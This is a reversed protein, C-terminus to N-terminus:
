HARAYVVVPSLGRGAVNFGSWKCQPRQRAAFFVFANLGQGGTVIKEDAPALASCVLERKPLHSKLSHRPFQKMIAKFVVTGAVNRLGM